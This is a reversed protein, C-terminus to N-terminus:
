FALQTANGIEGLQVAQVLAAGSHRGGQQRGCPQPLVVVLRAICFGLRSGVEVEPPLHGHSNLHFPPGKDLIRQLHEM